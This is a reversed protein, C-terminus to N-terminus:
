TNEVDYVNLFLGIRKQNGQCNVGYLINFNKLILYSSIDISNVVKLCFQLM